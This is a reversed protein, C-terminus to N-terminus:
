NGVRARHEDLYEIASLLLEQSDEMKGISLNCRACLLGRVCKGCSTKGPCCSHDHDVHFRKSGNNAMKAADTIRCIACGGGQSELMANYDSLGIGFKHRLQSDHACSKCREDLGDETSHYKSFSEVPATTKCRTCYKLGDKAPGRKPDNPQRSLAGPDGYRRVRMYHMGCLNRAHKTRGCGEVECTRM